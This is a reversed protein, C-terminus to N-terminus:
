RNVLPLFLRWDTAPPTAPVTMLVENSQAVFENDGNRALVRFRYDGPVLTAFVAATQATGVTDRVQWSIDYPGVQDIRYEIASTDDTPTWDIAIADAATLTATLTLVETEALLVQEAPIYHCWAGVTPTLDHFWTALFEDWRGDRVYAPAATVTVPQAPDITWTATFPVDSRYLSARWAVASPSNRPLPALVTISDRYNWEETPAIYPSGVRSLKQVGSMASQLQALAAAVGYPDNTGFSNLLNQGFTEIGILEDPPGLQLNQRSCQTTDVYASQRVATTIPNIQGAQTATTLADGLTSVAAGIAAIDGSRVWFIANPHTPDLTSQYRNIIMTAMEEPTSTPTFGALYKDYAAALWAYNPSAVFVKATKRVEYLADLNGQFCQDFFVLDFPRAGDDTAALLAQGIDVTSMYGRNTIDGPTGEWEQPLPPIPNTGTTLHRENASPVSSPWAVEPALALGHGMLSVMTVTAPYTSRVYRLFWTLVAPDATDLESDGWVQQVIDTMVLQGNAIEILHTDGDQRGDVLVVVQVTPNVATGRRFREIVYRIESALDNDAPFYAAVLIRGSTAQTVGVSRAATSWLASPQDGHPPTYTRVLLYYTRGPELGDVLYTASTKDLTHGHVVYPGDLATATAVEYFGGDETYSIPTWTLELANTFFQTVRLDTVATTQTARWDPDLTTMCQNVTRRNTFLGNYAFSSDMLGAVLRCLPAPIRGTLANNELRLQTLADLAGLSLPLTGSLQNRGLTLAAVRGASCGVGYWDCPANSTFSLWNTHTLWQVGQTKTFLNVLALCDSVPVASVTSCSQATGTAALGPAVPAPMQQDTAPASVNFKLLLVLALVILASTLTTLAMALTRRHNRHVM